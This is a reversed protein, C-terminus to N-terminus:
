STRAATFLILLIMMNSSQLSQLEPAAADIVGVEFKTKKNTTARKQERM